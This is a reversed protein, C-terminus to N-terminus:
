ALQELLQRAERLDTTDFGETFWDYLPTILSRAEDRRGQGQWLRGLSVAARLEFIRASQSHAIHAAQRFLPEAAGAQRGMALLIEGKHRLLEAYWFHEGGEDAYAIARELTALAEAYQGTLRYGSALMDLFLTLVGAGTEAFRQIAWEMQKVGVAAQGQQVRLWGQFLAGVAIWFVAEYQEAGLILDQVLGQVFEDTRMGYCAQLAVTHSVMWDSPLRKGIHRFEALQRRAEDGYGMLWLTHIEWHSYRFQPEVPKDRFHELADRQQGMRMLILAMQGKTEGRDSSSLQHPHDLFLQLAQRCCALAMRQQGQMMLNSRLINLATMQQRPTGVEQSLAIARATCSTMRENIWGDTLRLYFNADLLLDLMQEKVARSQSLKELCALGEGFHAVAEVYALRQSAVEGARQYCTAAQAMEGAGAWHSALRAAIEDRAEPYVRELAQAIARHIHPRRVPSIEGYAVERIRDHSFDYGDRGAEQLIGRRWLEDLGDVLAGEDLRSAHVLENFRFARGMAAAVGIIQRAPASVQELRAHIVAYIKPPLLREGNAQARGDMRRALGAKATEVVFLPNGGTEALLLERQSPNLPQGAVQAALTVSEGNELPGLLIETLQGETRLGDLLGTVPDGPSLEQPRLTCLVLVPKQAVFRLFFGLWSLTAEDCWQLDDLLLLRPQSDVTCARCLGELMQRRQWGESLPKPPPIHPYEALLEPLLRCVEGLWLPELRALTPRLSESRLWEVVPLYALGGEAAYARTRAAAMGQRSVWEYLEAALRSKGIGAEGAILLLHPQGAASQRWLALMQRWERQRGVLANRGPMQDRNEEPHAAKERSLLRQYLAATAFDPDVGLERRLTTACTHYTRLAQPRDGAAAYLRMLQRYSSEALPDARLLRQATQIAESYRRQFEYLETLRELAWIHQQALRERESLIWEAYSAPCLPGPYSDVARQLAAMEDENSDALRAQQALGLAREFDAVDLAVADDNLWCLTQTDTVLWREVDPWQSRLRFLERRLNSRAQSDTTEPWLLFAIQERPQPAGSRLLLYALLEQQRPASITVVPGDAWRLAFGNLLQIQLAAM